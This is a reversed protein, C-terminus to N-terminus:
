HSILTSYVALIASTNERLDELGCKTSEEALLEVQKYLIEEIDKLGKIEKKDEM